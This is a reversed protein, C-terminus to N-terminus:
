KKLRLSQKKSVEGEFQVRPGTPYQVAALVADAVKKLKMLGPVEISSKQDSGWMNRDWTVHREIWTAGLDLAAFTTMLGFEHGPYGITASPYKEKRRCIYNLNLEEVPCPYTSNTHMIVDPACAQVCAEIEEETSMGTSIILKEFKSRAYACFELDNILASPIKTITSYKAMVDVSDTDWMSAFFVIGIMNSFECLEKIRDENFERKWKYDIYSV